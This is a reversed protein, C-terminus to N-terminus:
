QAMRAEPVPRARGRFAREVCAVRRVVVGAVGRAGQVTQAIWGGILGRLSDHDVLQLALPAVKGVDARDQLRHHRDGGVGGILSRGGGGASPSVSSYTSASSRRMPTANRREIQIM